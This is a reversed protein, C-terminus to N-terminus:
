HKPPIHKIELALEEIERRREPAPGEKLSSELFRLAEARRGEGHLARGLGGYLHALLEGRVDLRRALRIAEVCNERAAKWEQLSLLARGEAEYFRLLRPDDDKLLNKAHQLARSARKPHGELFHTEARAFYREVLHISGPVPEELASEDSELNMLYDAAPRERLEGFALTAGLRHTDARGRAPTLAYDLELGRWRWGFGLAVRRRDTLEPNGGGLGLRASWRPFRYEAGLGVSGLRRRRAYDIELSAMLGRLRRLDTHAFRLASGVRIIEPLPGLLGGSGINQASAGVTVGRMTAGLIGVDFLAATASRGGEAARAASVGAGFHLAHALRTSAALGGKAASRSGHAWDLHAGLGGSGLPRAYGASELKTGAFGYHSAYSAERRLLSLGAPNWGVAHADDAVSVFAGGLGAPRAGPARRLTQPASEALALVAFLCAAALM